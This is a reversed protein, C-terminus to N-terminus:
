FKPTTNGGDLALKWSGDASRKWASFYVGHIASDKLAYTWKGWSYGIEGSRAAEAKVPWWQLTKTGPKGAIRERYAQKGITPVASQEFKVFDDDAYQLLANNFGEQLALASMASDTAMIEREAASQSDPAPGCAAAILAISLWQISFNKM